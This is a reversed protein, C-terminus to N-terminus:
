VSIAFRFFVLDPKSCSTWASYWDNDSCNCNLVRSNSVKFFAYAWVCWCNCCCINWNCDSTLSSLNFPSSACLCLAMVESCLTFLTDSTSIIACCVEVSIFFNRESWSWAMEFKASFMLLHFSVILSRELSNWSKWFTVFTFWWLICLAKHSTWALGPSAPRMSLTTPLGRPCWTGTPAIGCLAARRACDGVAAVPARRALAWGVCGM